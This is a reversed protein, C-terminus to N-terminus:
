TRNFNLLASMTRNKFSEKFTMFKQLIRKQMLSQMFHRNRSLRVYKRFYKSHKSRFSAINQALVNFSNMCFATLKKLHFGTWIGLLGFCQCMNNTVSCIHYLFLGQGIFPLSQLHWYINSYFEKLLSVYIM